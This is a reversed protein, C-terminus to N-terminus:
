RTKLLDHLPNTRSSLEKSVKSLLSLLKDSSQDLDQSKVRNLLLFFWQLSGASVTSITAPLLELMSNLVSTVFSSDNRHYM